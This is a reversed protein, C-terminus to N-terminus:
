SYRTEKFLKKTGYNKPEIGAKLMNRERELIKRQGDFVRKDLETEAVM